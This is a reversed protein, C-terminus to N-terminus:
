ILTHERPGLMKWTFERMFDSKHSTRTCKSQAPKGLTQAALKELEQPAANKTYIAGTLHGFCKSQAPECATHAQTKAGANKRYTRAYFQEQSFGHANRHRLSACFPPGKRALREERRDDWLTFIANKKAFHGFSEFLWFLKRSKWKKAKEPSVTRLFDFLKRSKLKKKKKSKNKGSKSKRKKPDRRTKEVKRRLFSFPKWKKIKNKVKESKELCFRWCARLEAFKEVRFFDIHEVQQSKM